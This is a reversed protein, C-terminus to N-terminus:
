RVEAVPDDGVNCSDIARGSQSLVKEKCIDRTNM